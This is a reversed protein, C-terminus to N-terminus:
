LGLGPFAFRNMVKTGRQFHSNNGCTLSLKSLVCSSVTGLVARLSIVREKSLCVAGGEGWEAEFLWFPRSPRQIGLGDYIDIRRGNQTWSTGDGCYDARIMRVCAQHYSALSVGHVTKWPKYGIPFACKAIAGLGKCAFTFASPDDVHAGGGAVGRGYNWRGALPISPVAAGSADHCLPSWLGNPTQFEVQYTWVDDDPPAQQALNAIRLHVPTGDFAVAHFRVQRFDAGAFQRSGALGHFVTGELSASDLPTGDELVTGRFSTFAVNIGMGAGNLQEGNLQEGNLQEGNLQEGNLQEGNAVVLDPSASGRDAADIEQGGCAAALLCMLLLKKM